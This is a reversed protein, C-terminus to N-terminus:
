RVWKDLLVKYGKFRLSCGNCCANDMKNRLRERWAALLDVEGVKGYNYQYPFDVCELIRGDWSIGMLDYCPCPKYQQVQKNAVPVIKGNPYVYFNERSLNGKAIESNLQIGEGRHVNYVTKGIGPHRKLWTDLEHENEKNVIFHLWAKQTPHRNALYFQLTQEAKDFYPKRHVRLYTEPTAASITFRVMKLNPHLLNKRNETITGNTDIVNMAGNHKMTYECFDWLRTDLMPEGNMFNGVCFLPTGAFYSVVQQYLETPMKGHPLNFSHQPNCYICDLDCNNITDMQLSEPQRTWIPGHIKAILRRKAMQYTYKLDM